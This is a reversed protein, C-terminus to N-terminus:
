HLQGDYRTWRPVQSEALPKPNWPSMPWLCLGLRQCHKWNDVEHLIVLGYLLQPGQRGGERMGLRLVSVQEAGFIDILSAATRYTINLLYLGLENAPGRWSLHEYPRPITPHEQSLYDDLEFWLDTFAGPHLLEPGECAKWYMLLQHMPTIDGGLLAFKGGRPSAFITCNKMPYHHDYNSLTELPVRSSQTIQWTKHPQPKKTHVFMQGLLPSAANLASVFENELEIFTYKRNPDAGPAAAGVKIGYIAMIGYIRDEERMTKRHKAAAYQVNPNSMPPSTYGTLQLRNVIEDRLALIQSTQSAGSVTLQSHLGYVMGALYSLTGPNYSPTEKYGPTIGSPAKLNERQALDILETILIGERCLLIADQRLVSEQLTWLSSFWWDEFIVKVTDYISGLVKEDGLIRKPNASSLSGHQMMNIINSEMSIRDLTWLWVYVNHANAFIGAQRGIEDMKVSYSEQDICVVDIWAFPASDGMKRIALQLEQQTFCDVVPIKWTVGAVPLRKDTSPNRVEWRGWTYSLINYKPRKVGRYIDGSSREVSTMTPIHLLRRPWEGRLTSWKDSYKSALTEPSSYSKGQAKLVNRWVETYENPEPTMILPESPASRALDQHRRGPANSYLM